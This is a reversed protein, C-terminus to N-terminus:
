WMGGRGQATKMKATSPIISKPAAHVGLSGPAGLSLKLENPALAQRQM